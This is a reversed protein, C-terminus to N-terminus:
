TERLPTWKCFPLSMPIDSPFKQLKSQMFGKWTKAHYCKCIGTTVDSPMTEKLLGLNQNSTLPIRGFALLVTGCNASSACIPMRFIMTHNQSFTAM